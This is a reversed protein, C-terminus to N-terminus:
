SKDQELLKAVAGLMLGVVAEADLSTSDIRIADPAARLPAVERARDRADRRAVEERIAGLEAVGGARQLDRLRRDARVSLDADLFFKLPANPFVVTGIDRGDMVVPGSHAMARQLAVMRTRVAPCTSVVSAAEDITPTRLAHTVDEGDVLVRPGSPGAAIRVDTAAALEGLRRHDGLEVGLRVAKWGLARYMAGSDIHVCGLREALRRAVTSKGAGVPGDIAIVFGCGIRSALSPDTGPERM